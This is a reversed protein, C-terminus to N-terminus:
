PYIWRILDKYRWQKQDARQVMLAMQDLTNLKRDNHRGEFEAVYRHLHAPSMKHCTGYYGRKLLAWFSEVGNTHAMGKVYEGVSHKVSQHNLLGEPHVVFVNSDCVPKVPCPGQERFAMLTRQKVRSHDAGDHPRPGFRAQFLM